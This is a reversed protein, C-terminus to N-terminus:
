CLGLVAPRIEQLKRRVGMDLFAIRCLDSDWRSRDFNQSLSVMWERQPALYRSYTTARFANSLHYYQQRAM